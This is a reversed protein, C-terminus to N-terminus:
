ASRSGVSMIASIWVSAQQYSVRKRCISRWMLRFVFIYTMCVELGTETEIVSEDVPM